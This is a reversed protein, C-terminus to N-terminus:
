GDPLKKKGKEGEVKLRAKCQESRTGITDYMRDPVAIHNRILM